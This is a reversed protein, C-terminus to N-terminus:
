SLQGMFDRLQKIQARTEPKPRLPCSAGAKRYERQVASELQLDSVPGKEFLALLTAYLAANRIQGGSLACRQAIEELFAPSVRHSPPLHNQWILWRETVDPPAFDIIVDLRRMFAPDLREGANTTIIVIGEYNELRQLLYNTELNAYRDNANRVETRTAMLADGEDLLVMVDLEEARSFVQHLNRETEGIYKNVVASLDVRYLDMEITAALARAALTKGTGSPGSFLARVGRNLNREFAPGSQERLSERARCRAELTRLEQGTQSNVILETWGGALELPTTLTELAQRNLSRCAQWVDPVQLSERGELAAYAQAMAAAQHIYGGTLLFHRSIADLANPAFTAGTTQWFRKRAELEPPPLQLTLSNTLLSGRLGGSRGLCIGAPGSYGPLNELELTEGPGPECRVVPIADSLTALSGLLRWNEDDPLSLNNEWLLVSRGLQRALAGLTTRRGSGTMGRLVLTQLQGQALLHPLRSVHRHFEGPLILDDLLPFTDAAQWIIGPVPRDPIRERLADWIVPPVRLLWEPRPDNRNDSTVLGWQLLHQFATWISDPDSEPESLLWSLLGLCPRRSALPEQLAAFLGGWRIDEEVLGVALLLNVETPELGAKQLSRLPLHGPHTKEWNFIQTEWWLAQKDPTIEPMLAALAQRYGAVFPFEEARGVVVQNTELNALARNLMAYFRLRFHAETPSLGKVFSMEDYVTM